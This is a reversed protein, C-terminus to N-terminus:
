AEQLEFEESLEMNAVMTVLEDYDEATMTERSPRDGKGKKMWAAKVVAKGEDPFQAIRHMLGNFDDVSVPYSSEAEYAMADEDRALHLGVGLAQCAKKLADSVASKLDDGIESVIKDDSNRRKIVAGGIGGRVCESGDVTAHVTVRAFLHDPNIQDHGYDDIEYSWGSTGLVSNMRAIVESVPVYDLQASGKRVQKIVEPPFPKALEQAQTM